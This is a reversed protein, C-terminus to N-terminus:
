IEHWCDTAMLNMKINNWIRYANSSIGMRAVNGAWRLQEFENSKLLPSHRAYIEFNIMTYNQTVYSGRLRRIDLYKEAVSNEFM